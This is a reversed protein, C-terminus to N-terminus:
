QASARNAADILKELEAEIRLLQKASLRQLCKLIFDTFHVDNTKADSGLKQRISSISAESLYEDPEARFHKGLDADTLRDDFLGSEMALLIVGIANVKTGVITLPTFDPPVENSGFEGELKAVLQLLQTLNSSAARALQRISGNTFSSEGYTNPEAQTDAVTLITNDDGLGALIGEGPIKAAENSLASKTEALVARKVLIDSHKSLATHLELELEHFNKMGWLVVAEYRLRSLIFNMTSQTCFVFHVYDTRSFDQVFDLDKYKNSKACYMTRVSLSSSECTARGSGLDPADAM